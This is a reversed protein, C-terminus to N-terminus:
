SMSRQKRPPCLQKENFNPSGCFPDTLFMLCFVLGVEPAPQTRQSKTDTCVLLTQVLSLKLESNLLLDLSWVKLYIDISKLTNDHSLRPDFMYRTCCNVAYTIAPQNRGSLYLLVGVLSSYSLSGRHGETGTYKVLPDHKAPTWKNTALKTDLGLAESIRDILGVEKLKVFGEDNRYM